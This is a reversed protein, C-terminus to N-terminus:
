LRKRITLTNKGGLYRYKVEDMTKKVIHIGLGGISREGPNQTIDMPPRNTPDFPLGSDTFAIQAMRDGPEYCVDIQADGEGGDYAYSAINVFIEEVALSIDFLAEENGDAMELQQAVFQTVEDLRDVKAPVTLQAHPMDEEDPATGLYKLCLMTIDDFQPEGKVFKLIEQHVRWIVQQPESDSDLNLAAVMGDEGLLEEAANTAEPVGDTYVFLCDGPELTMEYERYRLGDIVGMAPDHADQVLEYLGGKRKVAPYEHGGNAATLKGTRLDLIGLWVTCFMLSENNQCLQHNVYTLAEKPSSGAQAQNKLLTKSIVMFLSAPVGKGSVDAITLALHDEDVFYFDFFDGGVEKAPKMNAFLEFETRDPFPPFIGPLMDQQIKSAVGLETGIREKEATVVKLNKTYSDIKGVMDVCTRTLNSIEGYGYRYDHCSERVAEPNLTGEAGDEESEEPQTYRELVDALHLVPRTVKKEISRIFAMEIILLSNLMIAFMVYFRNWYANYVEFAQMGADTLEAAPDRMTRILDEYDEFLDPRLYLTNRYVAYTGMAVAIVGVVLFALVMRENITLTRNRVLSIVILVPIGLILAVDLYQLFWFVYKLLLEPTTYQISYLTSIIVYAGASVVMILYYKIVHASTDLRPFAVKDEGKLRIARWLIAPLLCYLTSATLDIAYYWLQSIAWYEPMAFYSVIIEGVSFILYGIAWWIGFLLGFLPVFAVSLDFASIGRVSSTLRGIQDLAVCLLISVAIAMLNKKWGFNPIVHFEGASNKTRSKEAKM